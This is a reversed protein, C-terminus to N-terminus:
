LVKFHRFVMHLVYAMFFAAIGYGCSLKFMSNSSLSRYHEEEAIPDVVWQFFLPNRAPIGTTATWEQVALQYMAKHNDEVIRLGSRAFPSTADHCQFPTGTTGCCDTGVAWFDLTGSKPIVFGAATKPENGTGELPESYIPAVCYTLGNRFAIAKTLDVSSGEKFYVSGADMFSTGKDVSPDVNVYNAMQQYENYKAVGTWWYNNGLVAGAALAAWLSLSIVLWARAPRRTRYRALGIYNALLAVIALAAPVLMAVAPSSSRISGSLCWFTTAFALTSLTASGITELPGVAQKVQKQLLFNTEARLKMVTATRSIRERFITRISGLVSISTKTGMDALTPSPGDAPPGPKVISPSRFAEKYFREVKKTQSSVFRRLDVIDKVTAANDGRLDLVIDMFEPFTLDENQEFIFDMLDVLALLDVGVDALTRVAKPNKLLLELEARNLKKDGDEDAETEELIRQLSFKVASLKMEESEVHSVVSIVECLIGILMNMVTLSSLLLYTLIMAYYVPGDDLALLNNILDGQDPLAGNILLTNMSVAVTAFQEDVRGEPANKGDLLQTFFIAFVYVVGLLLLLAFFVSRLAVGIAKLMVFLEPCARLLRAMRAMRTLRFLRLVRLFSPSSMAGSGMAAVAITLIWTEFVMLAVLVSDFVFWSDKMCNRKYRFAAFRIALEVSFYVCFLNEVVIFVPQADVLTAADNSDTDIAIWVSNVAIMFLTVHEFLSSRAIRQWVGTEKYYMSVDYTEKSLNQKLQRKLADADVFVAAERAAFQVKALEDDEHSPQASLPLASKLQSPSPSPVIQTLGASNSAVGVAGDADDAWAERNVTSLHPGSAAGAARDPGNEKERITGPMPHGEWEALRIRLDKNERHLVAAEKEYDKLAEVQKQVLLTMSECTAVVVQQLSDVQHLLQGMAPLNKQDPVKDMGLEEVQLFAEFEGSPEHGGSSFPM